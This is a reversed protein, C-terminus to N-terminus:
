VNQLLAHTFVMVLAVFQPMHPMVHLPPREHEAPM